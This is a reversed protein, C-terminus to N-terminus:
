GVARTSSEVSSYCEVSWVWGEAHPIAGSASNKKAYTSFIDVKKTQFPTRGAERTKIVHASALRRIDREDEM